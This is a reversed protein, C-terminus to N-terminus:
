HQPKNSQVRLTVSHYTAPLPTSFPHLRTKMCCCRRCFCACQTDDQSRVERHRLRADDRHRGVGAVGRTAADRVHLGSPLAIGDATSLVVVVAPRWARPVRLDVSGPSSSTGGAAVHTSARVVREPVEPVGSREDELLM